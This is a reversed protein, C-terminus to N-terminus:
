EENLFDANELRKSDMIAVLMFKEKVEFDASLQTNLSANEETRYGILNLDYKQRLQLSDLSKGVWSLPPYFEVLSINEDLSIVDALKHYVINKAVRIGTEKEPNIIRTAGMKMLIETSTKSKAKAVIKPVGLKHCHMVALISAELNSGTAVVVVECDSIGIEELVHIDTIDAIVGKAVYPELRNVNEEQSDVAIIDCDYQSLQKAITTGFLGIGLIGVTKTM